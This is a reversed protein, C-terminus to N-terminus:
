APVPEERVVEHPDKDYRLGKFSPHRVTGAKTWESFEVEAV